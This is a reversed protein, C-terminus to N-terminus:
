RSRQGCGDGEHLDWGRDFCQLGRVLVPNCTTLRAVDPLGAATPTAAVISQYDGIFGAFPVRYTQGAGGQPTLVIYGGYM